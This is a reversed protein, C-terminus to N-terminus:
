VYEDRRGRGFGDTVLLQFLPLRHFLLFIVDCYTPTSTRTQRTPLM